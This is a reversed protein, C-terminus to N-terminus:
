QIKQGNYQNDKKSTINRIVGKTEKSWQITHGVKIYQKKNGRQYIKVM